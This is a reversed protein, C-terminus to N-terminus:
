QRTELFATLYNISTTRTMEDLSNNRSTNLLSEMWTIWGSAILVRTLGLTALLRGM